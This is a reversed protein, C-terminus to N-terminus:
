EAEISHSAIEPMGCLVEAVETVVDEMHKLQETNYYLIRWGKRVLTNHRRYDRAQGSATNHGGQVYSGGQIEVCIMEGPDPWAFDLRFDRGTRPNRIKYQRVPLPLTPFESVWTALFRNELTEKQSRNALAKVEEQMLEHM